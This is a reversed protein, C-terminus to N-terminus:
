NIKQLQKKLALAEVLEIIHPILNENSVSHDKKGNLYIHNQKNMDDFGGIGVIGIDSNQAEGIGNVVCGLISITIPEKIHSLRNEIEAVVKVVDFGQRSCSPCSIFKVGKNRLNLSKLIDFGVKVEEVPDASLSVRITDGIGNSLLNGIGISSAVTGSRLTGSETIGLHLPYYCSQSLLQYAQTALFVNSAKVSIKFNTFDCDELIKIHNMASELMAQPTPSKYKDILYPELSGANVGIRISCNYDKAVKVVEMVKEKSGINGPNIRLCSAGARASEIARRYHFHIDAIIPVSVSDIIKKLVSTSEEDPCSVRVIDAGAEELQKIQNITAKYDYTKTNTMSQVSIPNDGGVAVKGVYVVKTKKRPIKYDYLM